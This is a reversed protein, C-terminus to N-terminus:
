ASVKRKKKAQKAKFLKRRREALTYEAKALYEFLQWIEPGGIDEFISEYYSILKDLAETRINELEADSYVLITEKLIKLNKPKLTLEMM